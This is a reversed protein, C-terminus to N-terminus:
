RYYGYNYRFFYPKIDPVFENHFYIGQLEEESEVTDNSFDKKQISRPQLASWELPFTPSVATKIRDIEQGVIQGLQVISSYIQNYSGSGEKHHELMAYLSSGKNSITGVGSNLGRIDAEIINERTICGVLDTAGLEYYLPKAVGYEYCGKAVIKNNTSFIIDEDFDLRTIVM